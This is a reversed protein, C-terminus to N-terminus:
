TEYFCYHLPSEFFRRMCCSVAGRFDLWISSSAVTGETSVGNVGLVRGPGRSFPLLAAASLFPPSAPLCPQQSHPHAHLHLHSPPLLLFRHHHCHIQPPTASTGIHYLQTAELPHIQYQMDGLAPVVPFHVILDGSEIRVVPEVRLSAQKETSM